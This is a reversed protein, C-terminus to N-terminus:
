SPGRTHLSREKLMELDARNAQSLSVLEALTEKVEAFSQSLGNKGNAGTFTEVQTLRQGHEVSRILAWSALAGIIAMLAGFEWTTTPSSVALLVTDRPMTAAQLMLIMPTQPITTM